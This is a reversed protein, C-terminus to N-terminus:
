EPMPGKPLPIDLGKTGYLRIRSVPTYVAGSPKLDSKFLYIEQVAHEGFPEVKTREVMKGILALTTRGLGKRVRGITLHPTFPKNDPQWGQQVMAEAVAKQLRYLADMDGTVGVWIVRPSKPSPFCGLSAYRLRFPKMPEVVEAVAAAAQAVKSVPWDGLFALTLHVNIPPIWRVVDIPLRRTLELQIAAIAEYLEGPVPIAWFLRWTEGHAGKEETM